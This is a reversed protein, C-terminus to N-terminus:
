RWKNRNRPPCETAKDAERTRKKEERLAEQRVAQQQLRVQNEAETEEDRAFRKWKADLTVVQRQLSHYYVM